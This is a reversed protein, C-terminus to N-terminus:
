RPPARGPSSFAFLKLIAQRSFLVISGGPSQSSLYSTAELCAASPPQPPIGCLDIAPTSAAAWDAGSESFAEPFTTPALQSFVGHGDNLLIAVPQRFWETALVLDVSHDGNVDRAEIRLGETPGALQISQRGARSLQLQIWYSTPGAGPETQITALDPRVDGDFDAIAFQPVAVPSSDRIDRAMARGSPFLVFLLSL